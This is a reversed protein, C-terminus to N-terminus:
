EFSFFEALTDCVQRCTKEDMTGLKKVLRLKSISRIHDLAIQGSKNQFTCNVRHPYYSRVVSTMAAITVTTLIENVENPSIIICPRTKSIEGGIVPNLDVLWVEFRKIVMAM